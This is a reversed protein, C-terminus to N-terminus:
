KKIVKITKKEELNNVVLVIYVGAPYSEFSLSLEVKSKFEKHSLKHGAVNYVEVFAPAVVVDNWKIFLSETVPNPYYAFSDNEDFLKYDYAAPNEVDKEPAGRGEPPCNICLVRTIQNGASDYDFNNLQAKSTHIYICFVLSLLAKKM